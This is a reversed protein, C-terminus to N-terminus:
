LLLFTSEPFQRGFKSLLRTPKPNFNVSRRGKVCFQPAFLSFNQQNLKKSIKLMRHARRGVRSLIACFPQFETLKILKCESAALCRKSALHDQLQNNYAISNGPINKADSDIKEIKRCVTPYSSKVDATWSANRTLRENVKLERGGRLGRGHSSLVSLNFNEQNLKKSIKLMRHAWQGVRSLIACFPQFETL